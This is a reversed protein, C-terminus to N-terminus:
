GETDFATVPFAHETQKTVGDWRIITRLDDDEALSYDVETVAWLHMVLGVDVRDLDGRGQYETVADAFESKDLHGFSVAWEGDEGFWGIPIGSPTTSSPFTDSATPVVQRSKFTLLRAVVEDSTHGDWAPAQEYTTACDLADWCKDPLHYSIDGTPLQLGAIFMGAFMTGDEHKRSRWALDRNSRALAIFLAHRHEYLEGFTHYGDSTDTSM